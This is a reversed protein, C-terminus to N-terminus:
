RHYDVMVLVDDDALSDLFNEVRAKWPEKCDDKEEPGSLRNDSAQWGGEKDLLDHPCLPYRSERLWDERKLYDELSEGRRYMYSKGDWIGDEIRKGYIDRPREGTRFFGELEGFREQLRARHWDWMAQWEIDKMRAGSTWRYGKPPDVTEDSWTWSIQGAFYERCTDRVLLLYPWRGGIEYWDWIGNPNAYYGFANEKEIYEIGFWEVSFRYIDPYIKKLPYGTLVRIRKARKTRRLQHVPGADAEFVKGDRIVFRNGYPSEFDLVITGQPLKLCDVTGEYGEVIRETCDCFKTRGPDTDGEYYEQMKEAVADHVMRYFEDRLGAEEHDQKGKIPTQRDQEKSIVEAEIRANEGYENIGPIEVASLTMFHM